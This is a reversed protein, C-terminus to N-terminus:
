GSHERGTYTVGITVVVGTMVVGLGVRFGTTVKAGVGLGVTFTVEVGTGVGVGEGSTWPTNVWFM